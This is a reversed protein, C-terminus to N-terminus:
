RKARSIRRLYKEFLRKHRNQLNVKRGQIFAMTVNTRIDLPDGTTVILTGDKGPELSGVRNELGLIKAPYYTIAKLAEDHPLGFAYAMSAHYPLNREHPAGGDGIICFEIGAKYLEAPVRFISDYGAWRDRPSRLLPGVMVPIKKEKLLHAVGPSELGGVIVIRVQYRSAFAIASQIQDATQAHIFLPIKRDFVLRMAEWRLDKELLDDPPSKHVTYYAWADEFAKKIIKLRKEAQKRWMTPDIRYYSPFSVSLSPWYLHMGIPAKLTMESWTWGDLMMVASLGAIADGRPVVHALLIGNARTVPIIESEPNFATEARVNPNIAGVESYDRTARVAGIETLGIISDGDILSPYIHAGKLDLTFADDPITIDPGLAKIKGQVILISGKFSSRTIPHIVANTLALPQVQRPGPIPVQAQAVMCVFGTCMFFIVVFRKM